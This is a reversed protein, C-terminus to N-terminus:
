TCARSTSTSRRRGTSAFPRPPSEPGAIRGIASRMTQCADWATFIGTHPIPPMSVLVATLGGLAALLFSDTLLQAVLRHRAAGLSGRIAMEQSRNAGQALLLNAINACAILVVVGTITQEPELEVTITTTHNPKTMAEHYFHKNRRAYGEANLQFGVSGYDFGSIRAKGNKDTTRKGPEHCDFWVRAGPM